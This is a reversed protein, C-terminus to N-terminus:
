DGERLTALWLKKILQSLELNDSTIVINKQDALWLRLWARADGTM